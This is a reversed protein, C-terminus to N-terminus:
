IDNYFLVKVRPLNLYFFPIFLSAVFRIGNTALETTTYQRSSGFIFAPAFLAILNFGTWIIITWLFLLRGWNHQQWLGYASAAFAVGFGMNLIFIIWIRAQNGNENSYFDPAQTLLLLNVFALVALTFAWAACLWVGWKLTTGQQM